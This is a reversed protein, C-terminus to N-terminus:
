KLIGDLTWFHWNQFFIMVLFQSFFWSKEFDTSHLSPPPVKQKCKRFRYFIQHYYDMSRLETCNPRLQSMPQTVLAKYSFNYKSSQYIPVGDLHIKDLWFQQLWNRNSIKSLLLKRIKIWDYASFVFLACKVRSLKIRGSWWFYSFDSDSHSRQIDFIGYTFNMYESFAM